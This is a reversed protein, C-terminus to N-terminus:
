HEQPVMPEPIVWQDWLLVLRGATTIWNLSSDLPQVTGDYPAYQPLDYISNVEFVFALLLKIIRTDAPHSNTAPM